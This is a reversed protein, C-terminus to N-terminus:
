ATLLGPSAGKQPPPAASQAVAERVRSPDDAMDYGFREVWPALVPLVPRMQEAYRRWQGIGDASLGRALQPGSPTAVGRARVQLPFDRIADSWPIRLWDCVGRLETEFDAVLAEHAIVRLNLAAITQLRSALQMAAVYLAAAGELTLLEYMAKNMLFRRRFCSLVVDRPDRRAFLIKADPFLKVIVPLKLTNLPHKDIFVKGAPNVGAARVRRWYSDRYRSLVEPGAGALRDLRAPDELFAWLADTLPEHETLTEVDPHGAMAQELLTTGSRPFGLLFVHARTDDGAARSSQRPADPDAWDRPSATEFYAALRQATRLVAGDFRGAYHRRREDASARYANFAEQCRGQADLVDGLLGKALSKQLPTPRHDALLALLRQEAAAPAGQALDAAAVTMMAPPYSPEVRLMTEAFRRAGDHDGYRSCLLSMGVSAGLHGPELDLARRYSAEAAKLSGMAELAGGRDCHAQARDPELALVANYMALAEETREMDSLCNGLASLTGPDGPDLEVARRLLAAAEELRGARELTLACLNLLFPHELGAKLADQAMEGARDFDGARAVDQIARLSAGDAEADRPAPGWGINGPGVRATWGVTSQSLRPGVYAKAPAGRPAHDEEDTDM